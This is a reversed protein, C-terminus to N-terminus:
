KYCVLFFFMDLMRRYRYLLLLLCRAALRDDDFIIICSCLHSQTAPFVMSPVSNISHKAEARRRNPRGSNISHKAEAADGTQGERTSPISEEAADETRGERTSVDYGVSVVVVGVIAVVVGRLISHKAKAGDDTQGERTSAISRKSATKLEVKGLQYM